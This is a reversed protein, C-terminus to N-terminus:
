KTVDPFELLENRLMIVFNSLNEKDYKLIKLGTDINALILKVKKKKLAM